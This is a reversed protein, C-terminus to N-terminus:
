VQNLERIPTLKPAFCQGCRWLVPPKSESIYEEIEDGAQALMVEHYNMDTLRDHVHNRLKKTDYTSQPWIWDVFDYYRNWEVIEQDRQEKNSKLRARTSPNVSVNLIATTEDCLRELDVKEGELSM